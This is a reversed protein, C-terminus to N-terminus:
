LYYQIIGFKIILKTAVMRLKEISEKHNNKFNKLHYDTMIPTIEIEDSENMNVHDPASYKGNSLFVLSDKDEMDTQLFEDEADPLLDWISATKLRLGDRVLAKGCKQCFGPEWFEKDAHEPCTYPSEAPVKEAKVKLYAGVYVTLQAGM